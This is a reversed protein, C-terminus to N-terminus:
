GLVGHVAHGIRTGPAAQSCCTGLLRLQLKSQQLMHVDDLRRFQM